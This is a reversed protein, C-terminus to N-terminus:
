NTYVRLTLELIGRISVEGPQYVRDYRGRLLSHLRGSLLLHSLKSCSLQQSLNHVQILGYILREEM